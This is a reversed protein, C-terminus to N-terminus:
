PNWHRGYDNTHLQPVEGQRQPITNLIMTGTGDEGINVNGILRYNCCDWKPLDTQASWVSWNAGGDTTVAYMWGMFVYSVRDNLFRVQNRPIPVPDDHRFIMVDRWTDSGDPASHFVYYAGPVFGGNEEYHRDIRVKFKGNSTEWTEAIAGVRPPLFLTALPWTAVVLVGFLLTVVAIVIILPRRM